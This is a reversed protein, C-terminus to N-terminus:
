ANAASAQNGGKCQNNEMKKARILAGGAFALEKKMIQLKGCENIREAMAKEVSEVYNENDPIDRLKGILGGESFMIESAEPSMEFLKTLAILCNNMTAKNCNNSDIMQQIYCVLVLDNIYRGYEKMGNTFAETYRRVCDEENSYPLNLDYRHGQVELQRLLAYLINVAQTQDLKMIQAAFSVSEFDFMSYNQDIIARMRNLNDERCKYEEKIKNDRNSTYLIYLPVGALVVTSLIDVLIGIRDYCDCVFVLICLIALVVLCIIGAIHKWNIRKM